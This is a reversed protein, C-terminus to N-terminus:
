PTASARTRPAATSPHPVYHCSRVASLVATSDEGQVSRPAGFDAKVPRVLLRWKEGKCVTAKEAPGHSISNENLPPVSPQSRAPPLPFIFFLFHLPARPGPRLVSVSRTCSPHLPRLPRTVTTYRDHLPRYRDTSSTFWPLTGSHYTHMAVDPEQSGLILTSVRDM